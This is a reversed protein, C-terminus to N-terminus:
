RLLKARLNIVEWADAPERKPDVWRSLDRLAVVRYGGGHLLEMYQEFLERTTNVWPHEGDPTGHFQLVAIPEGRAKEMAERFTDLDWSPRPVGVSPILLPHDRQPEYAVGLGTERPYEPWGGRRGWVIGHKKLVALAEVAIGNGPWAFSIPKPIGHALCAEDIGRLQEELRDVNGANLGLHDRTHNGIEFGDDYLTRIEPWTMYDTKNNPFSFGETIFFTAGFGYKKLIPRVITFNSKVSDDFTLVVLRDPIPEAAAAIGSALLFVWLLSRKM